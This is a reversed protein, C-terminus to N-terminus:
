EEEYFIEEMAKLGLMFEPLEQSELRSQYNYLFLGSILDLDELRVNGNYASNVIHYNQTADVTREPSLGLGFQMINVMAVSALPSVGKQVLEKYIQSITDISPGDEDYEVSILKASNWPVGNATLAVMTELRKKVRQEMGELKEKNEILYAEVREDLFGRVDPNNSLYLELENLNGDRKIRYFENLKQRFKNKM